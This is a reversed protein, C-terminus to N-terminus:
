NPDSYLMKVPRAIQAVEVRPYLKAPSATLKKPSEKGERREGVGGKSLREHAGSGGRGKM